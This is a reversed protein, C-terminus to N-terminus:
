KVVGLEYLSGFLLREIPTDTSAVTYDCGRSACFRRVDELYEKLAREYAELAGKNIRHKMNKPDPLGISESDCLYTRGAGEPSLERPSLVQVLLVQRKHFLLYDVAGRWDSDTLFDSVIVTVGDSHGTSSSKIARGLDCEGGFPVEEMRELARYVAEYGEPSWVGDFIDGCILCIDCGERICLDAIQGPLRLSAARLERRQIENFERLPADMHWDATHLVKIM